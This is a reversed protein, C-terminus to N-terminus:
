EARGGNLVRMDFHGFFIFSKSNKNEELNVTTVQSNIEAKWLQSNRFFSLVPFNYINLDQYFSDCQINMSYLLFIVGLVLLSNLSDNSFSFYLTKEGFNTRGLRM